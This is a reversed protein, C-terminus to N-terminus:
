SKRERELKLSLVLGIVVALGSIWKPVYWTGIIVSM